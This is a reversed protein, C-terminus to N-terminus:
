ERVVLVSCDAHRVVRAANPGLLFDMAKPRHSAMIIVDADINRAVQLIEWYITGQEVTWGVEPLDSLHQRVFEGLRIEAGAVILERQGELLHGGEANIYLEPVVTMVHLNSGFHQVYEVAIPLAKRWSSDHALDVPLLIKSYM